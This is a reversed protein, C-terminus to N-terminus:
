TGFTLQSDKRFQKEALRQNYEFHYTDLKGLPTLCIKNSFTLNLLEELYFDFLYPHVEVEQTLLFSVYDINSNNRLWEKTPQDMKSSKM